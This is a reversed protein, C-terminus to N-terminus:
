KAASSPAASQNWYPGWDGDRSKDQPGPYFGDRNPMRLELIGKKDMIQDEKIIGNRWLLFATLAYVDNPTLSGEAGQPMTRNIYDWITTAYPWFSGLTYTPSATKLTGVGGVLRPAPGEVGTQGHCFACKVAFIKAGETPTGTGPPLENGDTGVVNDWKHLEAPTPPKGFKYYAPTQALGAECVLLTIASVLILSCKSGRICRM